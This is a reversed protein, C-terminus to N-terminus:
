EDLATAYNEYYYKQITFNWEMFHAKHTTSIQSCTKTNNMIGGGWVGGWFVNKKILKKRNLVM